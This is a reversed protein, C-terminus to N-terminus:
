SAELAARIAPELAAVPLDARDGINVCAKGGKLRPDSAVVAAARAECGLYISLYSKQDAMAVWREGRRFVPMRWEIAETVDPAIMHVLARLTQLRERRLPTARALYADVEANM